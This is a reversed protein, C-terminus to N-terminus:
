LTNPYTCKSHRGVTGLTSDFKNVDAKALVTVCSSSCLPRTVRALDDTLGQKSFNSGHCTLIFPAHNVNCSCFYNTVFISMPDCYVRKM